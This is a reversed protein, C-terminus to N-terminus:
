HRLLGSSDFLTTTLHEAKCGSPVANSDGPPPKYHLFHDGLRSLLSIVNKPKKEEVTSREDLILLLQEQPM